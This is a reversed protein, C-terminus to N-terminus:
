PGGGYNPTKYSFFYFKSYRSQSLMYQETQDLTELM